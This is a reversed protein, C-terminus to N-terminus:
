IVEFFPEEAVLDGRDTVPNGGGGHQQAQDGEGPVGKQDCEHDYSADQTRETDDLLLGVLSLYTFFIPDHFM